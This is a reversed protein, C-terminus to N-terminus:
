KLIVREVGAGTSTLTVQMPVDTAAGGLTVTTPATAASAVRVPSAAMGPTANDPQTSPATTIAVQAQGTTPQTAPRTSATETQGPRKWEPHKEYLRAMFIQWGFIVAFAILMMPVLRKTDM